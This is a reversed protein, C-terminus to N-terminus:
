PNWIPWDSEALQKWTRDFEESGDDEKEKLRVGPVFSEDVGLKMLREAQQLSQYLHVEGGPFQVESYHRPWQPADTGRYREVAQEDLEVGLGPGDPVKMFGRQVEHSTM